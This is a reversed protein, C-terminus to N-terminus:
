STYIAYSGKVSDRSHTEAKLMGPAQAFRRLSILSYGLQNVSRGTTKQSVSTESCFIGGNITELLVMKAISVGLKDSPQRKVCSGASLAADVESLGRGMTILAKPCEVNPKLM